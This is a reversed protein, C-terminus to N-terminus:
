SGERKETPGGSPGVNARAEIFEYIPRPWRAAVWEARVRKYEEGGLGDCVGDAALMEWCAEFSEDALVARLDACNRCLRDPSSLPASAVEYSAEWLGGCRSCVAIM